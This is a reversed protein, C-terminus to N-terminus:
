LPIPNVKVSLCNILIDLARTIITPNAPNTNAKVESLMIKSITLQAHAPTPLVKDATIRNIKKQLFLNELIPATTAIIPPNINVRKQNGDGNSSTNDARTRVNKTAPKKAITKEKSNGSLSVSLQSTYPFYVIIM